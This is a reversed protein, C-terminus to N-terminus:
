NKESLFKDIPSIKPTIIRKDVEPKAEDILRRLLDLNSREIHTGHLDFGEQKVESIKVGEIASWGCSDRSVYRIRDYIDCSNLGNFGYDCFQCFEKGKQKYEEVDYITIERKEVIILGGAGLVRKEVEEITKM